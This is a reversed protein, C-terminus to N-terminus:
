KQDMPPSPPGGMRHRMGMPPQMGMHRQEMAPALELAKKWHKQQDPTLVKNVAYWGDLRKLRMQVDVDAIEKLKREIASRDPNDAKLLQRLEIDATQKKARDAV